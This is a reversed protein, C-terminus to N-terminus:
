ANGGLRAQDVQQFFETINKNTPPYRLGFSGNQFSLKIESRTDDVLKREIGIITDLPFTASEVEAKDIDIKILRRNTLIYSIVGQVNEKLNANVVLYAQTIDGNVISEFFDSIQQRRIDEIKNGKLKFIEALIEDLYEKNNTAM